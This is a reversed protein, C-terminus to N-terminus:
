VCLCECVCVSVCVCVLACVCWCVCVCVCVGFLDDVTVWMADGLVAKWDACALLEGYRAYAASSDQPAAVMGLVSALMRLFDDRDCFDVRYDNYIRCTPVLQSNAASSDQPAAVTGFM